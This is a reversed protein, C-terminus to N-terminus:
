RYDPLCIAVRVEHVPHLLISRLQLYLFLAGGAFAVYWSGVEVEQRPLVRLLAPDADCHTALCLHWRASLNRGQSIVFAWSPGLPELAIDGGVRWADVHPFAALGPSGVALLGTQEGAAERILTLARAFAEM